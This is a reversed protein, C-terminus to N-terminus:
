TDYQVGYRLLSRPEKVLREAIREARGDCFLAPPNPQM